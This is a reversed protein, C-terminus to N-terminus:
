IKGFRRISSIIIIRSLSISVGDTVNQLIATPSGSEKQMGPIVFLKMTVGVTIFIFDLGSLFYSGFFLGLLFWLRIPSLFVTSFLCFSELLILIIFRPSLM